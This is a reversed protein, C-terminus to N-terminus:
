GVECKGRVNVQLCLFCLGRVDGICHTDPASSARFATAAPLAAPGDFGGRVCILHVGRLLPALARRLAAQPEVGAVEALLASAMPLYLVVVLGGDRLQWQLEGCEIADRARRARVRRGHEEGEVRADVGGQPPLDAEVTDESASYARRGRCAHVM